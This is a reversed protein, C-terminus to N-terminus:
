TRSILDFTIVLSRVKTVTLQKCFKYNESCFALCFIHDHLVSQVLLIVSFWQCNFLVGFAIRMFLRIICM